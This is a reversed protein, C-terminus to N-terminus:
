IYLLTHSTGRGLGEGSHSPSQWFCEPHNEGGVRHVKEVLKKEEESMNKAIDNSMKVLEDADHKSLLFPYSEVEKLLTYCIAKQETTTATSGMDTMLALKAHLAEYSTKLNFTRPEDYLQQSMTIYNYQLRDYLSDTDLAKVREPEKKRMEFLLDQALKLGVNLRELEEDSDYSKM